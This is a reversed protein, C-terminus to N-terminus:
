YLERVVREYFLIGRGSLEALIPEPPLCEPALVGSVNLDRRVIMMAAVTAPLAVDINTTSFKRFMERSDSITYISHVVKKGKKEGSVDVILCVVRGSGGGEALTDAEEVTEPAEPALKVFVDLPAVKAGKVDVPIRSAFNMKILAAAVPDVPYKFDVYKVGKGIFKSLTVPEEHIHWSLVQEEVPSPFEYKEVGSFIPVKKLQGDEFIIPENAYDLLAIEPSWGPSWPKVIAEAEGLDRWGCRVRIQEVTDLQDSAYRAMVNSVGPTSGMEIVATLGASKWKADLALQESICEVVPYNSALDVYHSGSEIAAAMARLNFGPLANVVLDMGKTAKALDAQNAADVKLITIKDSKLRDKLRRMREVNADACVIESVDTSDSLLKAIVSGQAGVGLVSIRL